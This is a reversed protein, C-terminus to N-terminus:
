WIFNEAALKNCRIKRSWFILKGKSNALSPHYWNKSRNRHRNWNRYFIVIGIGIREM